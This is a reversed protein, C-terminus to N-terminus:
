LKYIATKRRGRRLVAARDAVISIIRSQPRFDAEDISRGVFRLHGQLTRDLQLDPGFVRNLAGRQSGRPAHRAAGPCTKPLTTSIGGRSSLGLGSCAWRPRNSFANLRAPWTPSSPQRCYQGRGLGGVIAFGGGSRAGLTPSRRSTIPRRGAVSLRRRPPEVECGSGQACSPRGVWGIFVVGLGQCSRYCCALGWSSRGPLVSVLLDSALLDSVTLRVGTHRVGALRVGTLGVGTLGVGTLGVGYTRCWYTQCWYTSV